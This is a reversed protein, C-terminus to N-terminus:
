DKIILLATVSEKVEGLAVLYAAYKGYNKM